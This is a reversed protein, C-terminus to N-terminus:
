EEAEGAPLARELAMRHISVYDTKGTGLLPIEPLHLIDRAVALESAGIAKAAVSLAKRSLAPDTTAIVLREGKAADPLSVAAHAHSPSASAAIRECVELSVMEGAIKAFRKARGRIWVFGEPDVECIDGTDHWGEGMFDSRPPALVGPNDAKYYGSMLNPGRVHLRGGAPIGPVPELSFAIGPLIQGVSGERFAHPTNVSIVPATETAGYGELLRIGFKAVWTKRVEESLKEAGAVVHRLTRFDYPEAFKAYNGLFTSTGFLVTCSRDYIMHPIIRNHLPSPYLLLNTGTLAPLLAGGTLGFAHFIPLANFVKDAPSMDIVARIQAINSLLARHSLAVGKPKGESGSTFLIAAIAEEDASGKEAMRPFLSCFFAAAKDALTVDSKIDELYLVRIGRAEIGAVLASLKAQEVFAKSSIVSRVGSAECSSAVADPGATYNLMAAPRHRSALGFFLALAAFVNPLLVGCPSEGPCQRDALRGLAVSARILESYSRERLDKDELFRRGKGHFEAAESLAGWLTLRSRSAFAANQMISRLREGAARRRAKASGAEPLELTESPLFTLTIKPFLRTPYLGAVRSFYSGLLGDIRVPFIPAASKAAVFAPGDYIKMLSGTTTIRGEPFIVVSRGERLAKILHKAALPSTPDMPLYDVLRLIQRFWFNKPVNSHVAFIPNGPLFLGLLMGDLFSQHNAVIMRAASPAPDIAGQVRVRFLIRFLGRLFPKAISRFM